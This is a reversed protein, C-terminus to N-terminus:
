KEITVKKIQNEPQGSISISPSSSRDFRWLITSTIVGGLGGFIFYSVMAGGFGILIIHTKTMGLFLLIPYHLALKTLNGASGIVFGVIINKLYGRFALALLDIAIGMALYELVAFLGVAELGTFAALVGTIASTCTASGLKKVIGVSAFIPIIWFIGDHGPIQLPPEINAVIYILVFDLAGMISIFTIQRTSFHIGHM